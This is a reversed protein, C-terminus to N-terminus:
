VKWYDEMSAIAMVRLKWEEISLRGKLKKPDTMEWVRDCAVSDGKNLAKMLRRVAKANLRGGVKGGEADSESACSSDSDSANDEVESESVESIDLDLKSRRDARLRNMKELVTAETDWGTLELTARPNLLQQQRFNLLGM